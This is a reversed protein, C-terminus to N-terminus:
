LEDRLTDKDNGDSTEESESENEDDDSMDPMHETEHMETDSNTGDYADGDSTEGAPTEPRVRQMVYYKKLADHLRTRVDDASATKDSQSGALVDFIRNAFMKTGYLNKEYKGVFLDRRLEGDEKLMRRILKVIRNPEVYTYEHDYTNSADMPQIALAAIRLAKKPMSKIRDRTLKGGAAETIKKYMERTTKKLISKDMESYVESLMFYLMKLSFQGTEDCIASLHERANELDQAGMTMTGNGPYQWDIDFDSLKRYGLDAGGCDSFDLDEKEDFRSFLLSVAFNHTGYSNVQHYVSGPLYLCDGGNLVTRQWPVSAVKPYKILDVKNPNIRSYGGIEREPEWAKYISKEYKYEILKWEKTGNMLCNIQNFADKHIISSANGGNMWWDVEVIRKGMEGCALQPIVMMEDQMPRPLESVIYKNRDHYTDIFNRITDRGVGVDGIPIYGQKEKKAELRVELDGYQAKLYEDTWKEYAPSQKAAGRFVAPKRRSVYDKWFQKPSPMNEMTIEDVPSPAMHAGFPELHGLPPVDSGRISYPVTLLCVSIFYTLFYEAIM